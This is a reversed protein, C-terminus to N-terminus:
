LYVIAAFVLSVISLASLPWVVKQLPFWSKGGNERKIRRHWKVAFFFASGGAILGVLFKDIGALTQTGFELPSGPVFWLLMLLGIPGAPPVLYWLPNKVGKNRMASWVWFIVAMFFGATWVGIISNDVGARRAGELGVLVVATCIPCTANAATPAFFAAPAAFKLINKVRGAM